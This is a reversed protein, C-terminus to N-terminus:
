VDHDGQAVVIFVEFGSLSEWCGTDKGGALVLEAAAGLVLRLVFLRKEKGDLPNEERRVEKRGEREFCLGFLM